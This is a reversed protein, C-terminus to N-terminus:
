SYKGSKSPFPIFIGEGGGRLAALYVCTCQVSLSDWWVQFNLSSILYEVKRRSIFAFPKICAPYDSQVLLFISHNLCYVGFFFLELTFKTSETCLVVGVQGRVPSYVVSVEESAALLSALVPRGLHGEEVRMNACVVSFPPKHARVTVFSKDFGTLQPSVLFCVVVTFREFTVDLVAGEGGLPLIFQLIVLRLTM